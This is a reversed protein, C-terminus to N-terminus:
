QDSIPRGLADVEVIPYGIELLDEWIAAKDGVIVFTFDDLNYLAGSQANLAERSLGLVATQEDELFQPTLGYLAIQSLLYIKQAHSETSRARYKTRTLRSNFDQGFMYNLVRAEFYPGNHDYPLSVKGIRFQSQTATPVDHVYITPRRLAPPPAVTFSTPAGTRWESLPELATEMQFQDLDSVGVITARAATYHSTYFERVDELTITELTEAIGDSPYAFANQDGYIQKNFITAATYSPNKAAAKADGIARAKVREFEEPDFKPSLLKEAAISLVKDSHESLTKIRISTNSQGSSVSVTAGLNDLRDTIDGASSEVTSQDLMLRVLTSLGIKDLPEDKRGTKIIIQLTTTPADTNEAILVPIANSTAFQTLAPLSADPRPGEGPIQSRDFKDQPATWDFGEVNVIDPLNRGPYTWSDNPTIMDRRGQPVVRMIVAPRTKIHRSYISKLDSPTVESYRAIDDGFYDPRGLYTEYLSLYDVKSKVTEIAYLHQSTIQTVARNMRDPTLGTGVLEAFTADIIDEIEPFSTSGNPKLVVEITFTCALERCINYVGVDQVKGSEVLAQYLPSSQGGAAITGLLDFKAEDPGYVGKDLPYDIRLLPFEVNDEMSIYRDAELTVPPLNLPEVNPGRPISGFYKAIWALTERRDFDGGITLVANNPGYWRAFFASVDDLTAANLDEIYGIRHWSYPHGHPYTAEGIRESVVGYPVNDFKLNRENKVAARQLEFKEQTMDELLFGMRDAELWLMRELQNAPVTQHYNTWDDTVEGNANGGADSVIKFYEEDAVNASGQFMMHEFLHAFGSRGLVERNAGVHFRVDTHVLPDSRDIHLLITLGNDLRYKEYAIRSNRTSAEVFEINEPLDTTIGASQETPTRLCATLSMVVITALILGVANKM